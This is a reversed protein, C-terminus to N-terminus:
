RSGSALVGPGWRRLCVDVIAETDIRGSRWLEVVSQCCEEHRRHQTYEGRPGHTLILSYSGEALLRVITAQVQKSRCRCKSQDM